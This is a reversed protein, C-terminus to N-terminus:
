EAPRAGYVRAVAALKQHLSALDATFQAPTSPRPVLGLGRFREVVQPIAIIEQVMANLRALLPAPMGKWGFLGPFGEVELMPFGAERATPVEPARPARLGPTVALIRLKGDQALPVLPTLPQVTMAVRGAATDTVGQTTVRYSIFPMDLGQQKLYALTLLYTGGPASSWSYKGPEARVRAFMEALTRGPFDSHVAYALFDTCTPAIPVLDAATDYPLREHMLPLTTITGANTFFLASGPAAQVFAQAGILGDAGPRADVPFPQGLRAALGEALLRVLVDTSTGPSGTSVIRIPQDPWAQARAGRALLLAPLALTARRPLGPRDRETM